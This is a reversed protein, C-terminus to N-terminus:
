DEINRKFADRCQQPITLGYNCYKIAHPLLLHFFALKYSDDKFKFAFQGKDDKYRHISEDESGDDVFESTFLTQIGRRFTGKTGGKINPDNNSAASLKCHPTIMIEAKEYIVSIPFPKGDVFNCFRDEDILKKGWENMWIMRYANDLLCGFNKAFNQNNDDFAKNGMPHVYIPFASTMLEFLSSKANSATYGIFLNFKQEKTYGTLNYGLWDMTWTYGEDTPQIMRLKKQIEDMKLKLDDNIEHYDYPLCKTVFDTKRRSRFEGTHLDICGNKFHFLGRQADNMDMKVSIQLYRKCQMRFEDVIKNKRTNSQLTLLECKRKNLNAQFNKMAKEKQKEAKECDKKYRRYEAQRRHYLKHAKEKASQALKVESKKSEIESTQKLRFLAKEAKLETADEADLINREYTQSAELQERKLNSLEIKLRNHVQEKEMYAVKAQQLNAEDFMPIEVQAPETYDELQLSMYTYLDEITYHAPDKGDSWIDGNWFYLGRRTCVFNDGYLTVMIKAYAEDTGIFLDDGRLDPVKPLEPFEKKERKALSFEKDCGYCYVANNKVKVTKNNSHEVQFPCIWSDKARALQGNDKVLYWEFQGVLNFREKEENSLAGSLEVQKKRKRGKYKELIVRIQRAGPEVYHISLKQFIEFTIEEDYELIRKSGEKACLPYRWDGKQYVKWDIPTTGLKWITQTTRKGNKDTGYLPEQTCKEKLWAKLHKHSEFVVGPITIHFSIKYREGKQGCSSQVKWPETIGAANFDNRIQKLYEERDFTEESDCVDDIDVHFNCKKNPDRFEYYTRVAGNDYGRKIDSYIAQPSAFAFQKAGTGGPKDRSFRVEDTGKEPLNKEVQVWNFSNDSSEM